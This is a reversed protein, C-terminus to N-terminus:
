DKNWIGVLVLYPNNTQRKVEVKDGVKLEPHFRYLTEERYGRRVMVTTRGEMEVSRVVAKM